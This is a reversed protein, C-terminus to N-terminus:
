EEFPVGDIDEDDIDGMPLGDIDDMPLGDIDDGEVVSSRMRDSAGGSMFELPEGDIDDEDEDPAPFVGGLVSSNEIPVGDLDEGDLSESSKLPVGDVDMLLQAARAEEELRRKALDGLFVRELRALFTSFAVFM